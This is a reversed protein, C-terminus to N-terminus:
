LGIGSIPIGLLLFADNRWTWTRIPWAAKVAPGFFLTPLVPGHSYSVFWKTGFIGNVVQPLNIRASVLGQPTGAGFIGGVGVDLINPWPKDLSRLPVYAAGYKNGALNFASDAEAADISSKVFDSLQGANSVGTLGM